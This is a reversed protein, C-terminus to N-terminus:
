QGQVQEEWCWAHNIRNTFAIVCLCQRQVQEVRQLVEVCYETEHLFVCRITPCYAATIKLSSANTLPRHSM